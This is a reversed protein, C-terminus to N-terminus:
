RKKSVPKAAPKAPPEPRPEAAWQREIFPRESAVDPRSYFRAYPGSPPVDLVHIVPLNRELRTNSGEYVEVNVRDPGVVDAIRAAEPEAYRDSLYQVVQGPKPTIRDPM